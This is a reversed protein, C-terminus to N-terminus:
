LVKHQCATLLYQWFLGEDDKVLHLVARLNDVGHLIEALVSRLIMDGAGTRQQANGQCFWGRERHALDVEHLNVRHSECFKQKGIAVFIQGLIQLAYIGDLRNGIGKEIREIFFQLHVIDGAAHRFRHEHPRFCPIDGGHLFGQRPNDTGVLTVKGLVGIDTLEWLDRHDPLRYRRLQCPLILLKDVLNDFFACSGSFVLISQLPQHICSQHM